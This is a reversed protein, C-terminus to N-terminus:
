LTKAQSVVATGGPHDTAIASINLETGTPVAVMATYLWLGSGSATELAEGNEIITAGSNTNIVVRVSVLEFDDSAKIKIIDNVHGHYASSDVEKITPPNLFDAVTLAFVPTDKEKAVQEYQARLDADAMVSKGYAVAEGFRERHAVQAPTPESTSQGPKISVYVQGNRKRFLMDGMAGRFELLAPHLRAKTM